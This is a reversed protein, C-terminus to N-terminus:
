FSLPILKEALHGERPTLEGQDCKDRRIDKMSPLPTDVTQRFSRRLINLVIVIARSSHVCDGHGELFAVKAVKKLKLQTQVKNEILKSNTM